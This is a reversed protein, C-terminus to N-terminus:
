VMLLFVGFVAMFAGAIALYSVHIKHLYISFPIICIPILSFFTSAVGTPLYHLAMLSMSVGIFPGIAAGM